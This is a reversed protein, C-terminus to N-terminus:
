DGMIANPAQSSMVSEGVTFTVVTKMSQPEGKHAGIKMLM